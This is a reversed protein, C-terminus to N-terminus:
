QASVEKDETTLTKYPLYLNLQIRKFTQHGTRGQKIQPKPLPPGTNSSTALTEFNKVFPSNRVDSEAVTRSLFDKKTERFHQILVKLLSIHRM